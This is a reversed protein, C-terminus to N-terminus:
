RAGLLQRERVRAGLPRREVADVELELRALDDEEDPAGPGPLRREHAREGPEHRVEVAAAEGPPDHDGPEVRPARVRGCQGSGDRRDELVGLVLDHHRPDGGLDGEPQLVEARGVLLDQRAGVGREDRDPRRM